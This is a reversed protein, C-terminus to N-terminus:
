FRASLSFVLASNFISIKPQVLKFRTYKIGAEIAPCVRCDFYKHYGTVGGINVSSELNDSLQWRYGWSILVSKEYYSNKFTAASVTHGSGAFNYSLGIFNHNSENYAFEKNFHKSASYYGIDFSHDSAQVSNVTLVTIVAGIILQIFNIKKM